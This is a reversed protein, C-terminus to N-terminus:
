KAAVHLRQLSSTFTAVGLEFAVAFGGPAPAVAPSHEVASTAPAGFGQPDQVTGDRRVRAARVDYEGATSRDQWAVLYTGNWAVKPFEQDNGTTSIPTGDFGDLAVGDSERVRGGYVDSSAGRRDQWAVFFDQGDSAVAPLGEPTHLTAVARGSPVSDLVTGGVVRAAMINPDDTGYREDQWVVLSVGNTPSTAVDPYRQSGGATSIAFGGNDIPGSLYTVRRGWIDLAGSRKDQWTVLFSRRDEATSPAAGVAPVGQAASGDAIRFLSGTTGDTEVFRGWVDGNTTPVQTAYVVLFRGGDFAVDPYSDLYPGGGITIRNGVLAGDENVRQAYVNSNDPTVAQEWVFLHNTGDFAVEPSFIVEASAVTTPGSVAPPAAAAADPAVVASTTALLLAAALTLRTRM